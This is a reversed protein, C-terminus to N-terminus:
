VDLALVGGRSCGVTSAPDKVRCFGHYVVLLCVLSSLGILGCISFFSSPVMSKSALANPLALTFYVMIAATLAMLVVTMQKM